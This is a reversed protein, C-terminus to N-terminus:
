KNAEKLDTRLHELETRISQEQNFSLKGSPQSLTKLNQKQVDLRHNFEDLEFTGVVQRTSLRKITNEINAILESLSERQEYIPKAVPTVNLGASGKPSATQPSTKEVASTQASAPPTDMFSPNGFPSSSQQHIRHSMATSNITQELTSAEGLLNALIAPDQFDFKKVRMDFDSVMDEIEAQSNGLYVRKSSLANHMRSRADELRIRNDKLAQAAQAISNDIDKELSTAPGVMDKGQGGNDIDYLASQKLTKVRESFSSLDTASLVNRSSELKSQIRGISGNIAGYSTTDTETSTSSLTGQAGAIDSSLLLLTCLVLAIAWPHPNKCNM